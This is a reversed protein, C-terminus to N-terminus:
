HGTRAGSAPETDLLERLFGRLARYARLRREGFRRVKALLFDRESPMYFYPNAEWLVCRGDATTAYDVAAVDLDLARVARVLTSAHPEDAKSWANDAEVCRKTWGMVIRWPHRRRKRFRAYTCTKLSVIPENSFLVSRRDVASGFVLARQKHFFRSWVSPLGAAQRYGERTDVFAALAGPYIIEGDAIRRVADASAVLRLGHQSHVRDGRLLAPFPFTALLAELEDRDAFGAHHPTHLGAARWLGAQVSKISNSLADPPNVLRAGASAAAGAIAAAEEYCAPHTERLPDALWFWVARVGTLDPQPASGTEHLTVAAALDADEAAMWALAEDLTPVRRARGPGHCVILVRGPSVAERRERPKEDRRQM